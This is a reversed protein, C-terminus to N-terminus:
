AKDLTRSTYCIIHSKKNIQQGLVVGLVYISADSMIEFPHEWNPSQM